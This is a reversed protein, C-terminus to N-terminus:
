VVESDQKKFLPEFTGLAVLRKIHPANELKDLQSRLAGIERGQKDSRMRLREMGARAALKDDVLQEITENKTRIINLLSKVTDNGYPAFGIHGLIDNTM